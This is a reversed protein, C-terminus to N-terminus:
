SVPVKTSVWWRGCACYFREMIPNAFNELKGHVDTYEEKRTAQSTDLWEIVQTIAHELQTRDHPIFWGVLEENYIIKRLTYAYAELNNKASICAIIQEDEEKYKKAENVMREIEDRSLRGMENTITVRTSSGTNRNIVAVDLIGDADVDFVVDILPVGRPAPAIGSLELKGLLNNDQTRAREGEYVEILVHPQNDASTSITHAKKTPIITNRKIIPTMVDNLGIGISLPAVDLLVIDKTRGKDGSLIAAQVAAGYAVAEEPNIRLSPEKGDFFDSVLKRIGPIRTSGGVLVIEDVSSKELKLDRLVKEIPEITERFLDRCLEEFRARTISTYFDIGDSLSEIEISATTASSLARKARECAARLRVLARANTSIDKRHKQKFEQVLHTLFRHDFDIGGLNSTGATAKVEFVGNEVTLLSVDFTGGGLDFVLVTRVEETPNQLGYAMAAATPENIIRLVNLGAITAADKTARRQSDNFYAPVTVVADKVICGLYAEAIEKMKSLIMSSIEEPTLEKRKGRCEIECIPKGARNFVKFPFRRINAQLDPDDFHRGIMRKTDYITNHPNRTMQNKAADGVLLGADTFSVCSPTTRNGQDNPVIEVSGNRWVAACSYSTGLDIGIALSM